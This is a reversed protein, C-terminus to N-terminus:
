CILVMNLRSVPKINNRKQRLSLFYHKKFHELIWFQYLHLQCPTYANLSKNWCVMPNTWMWKQCLWVCFHWYISDTNRFLGDNANPSSLLNKLRKVAKNEWPTVINEKRSKKKRRFALNCLLACQGPPFSAISQFPSPM